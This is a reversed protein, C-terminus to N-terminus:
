LAEGDGATADICQLLELRDLRLNEGLIQQLPQLAQVRAGVGAVTEPEQQDVAQGYAFFRDGSAQLVGESLQWQHSAGCTIAQTEAAGLHIGLPREHRYRRPPV